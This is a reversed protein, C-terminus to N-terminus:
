IWFTTKIGHKEHKRKDDNTLTYTTRNTDFTKTASNM